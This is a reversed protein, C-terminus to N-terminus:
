GAGGEGVLVFPAWSEPHAEELSGKDILKLMASRLAEAPTAASDATIAELASTM